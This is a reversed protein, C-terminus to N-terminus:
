KKPYGVRIRYTVGTEINKFYVNFSTYNNWYYKLYIYGKGGDIYLLDSWNDETKSLGSGSYKLDDKTVSYTGQPLTYSILYTVFGGDKKSLWTADIKIDKGVTTFVGETDYYVPKNNILEYARFYYTTAAKLNKFYIYYFGEDSINTSSTNINDTSEPHPSVSYCIKLSTHGSIVPTSLTMECTNAQDYRDIYLKSLKFDTAIIAPTKIVETKSYYVEDDALAYIRIYYETNPQLGNLQSDVNLKLPLVSKESQITPTTTTSFCVGIESLKLGQPNIMGSVQIAGNPMVSFNINSFDVSKDVVTIACIVSKDGASVKINANGSAIAKVLGNDDVSAVATNDSSWKPERDTANSPLVTATLQLTSGIVLTEKTSNITISSVPIVKELVNVICRATANNALTTATIVTKGVSMGKVMGTEDVLAIQPNESFWKHAKNPADAPSFGAVLRESKGIELTIEDKSLNISLTEGNVSTLDDDKGCSSVLFLLLGVSVCGIIRRSLRILKMLLVKDFTRYAKRLQVSQNIVFFRSLRYKARGAKWPERM